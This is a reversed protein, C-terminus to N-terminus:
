EGEAQQDGVLESQPYLDDELAPRPRLTVSEPRYRQLDVSYTMAQQTNGFYDRPNVQMVTYREGEVVIHDGIGPARVNLEEFTGAFFHAKLPRAEDLGHKMLKAKWEPLEALYCETTYSPKSDKEFSQDTAELYVEDKVGRRYLYVDAPKMFAKYVERNIRRAFALDRPGQFLM